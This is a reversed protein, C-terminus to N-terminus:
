KVSRIRHTEQLVKWVRHMIEKGGDSKESVLDSFFDDFQQNFRSLDREDMNAICAKDKLSM